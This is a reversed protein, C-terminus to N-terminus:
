NIRCVSIKIWYIVVNWKTIPFCDTLYNFLLHKNSLLSTNLHSCLEYAFAPSNPEKNWHRKEFFAHRSTVLEFLHSSNFLSAGLTGNSKPVNERKKYTNRIHWQQNHAHPTGWFKHRNNYHSHSTHSWFPRETLNINVHHIKLQGVIHGDM